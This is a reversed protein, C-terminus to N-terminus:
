EAPPLTRDSLRAPGQARDDEAPGRSSCLVFRSTCVFLQHNNTHTNNNNNNNNNNTTTTTTAPSRPRRPLARRPAPGEWRPRVQPTRTTYHPVHPRCHPRICNTANGYHNAAHASNSSQCGCLVHVAHLGYVHRRAGDQRSLGHPAPTM